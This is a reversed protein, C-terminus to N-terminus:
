ANLLKLFIGPLVYGIVIRNAGDYGPLNFLNGIEAHKDANGFSDIAQDM